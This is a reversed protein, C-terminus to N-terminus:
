FLEERVDGGSIEGPLVEDVFATFARADDALGHVGCEDIEGCSGCRFVCAECVM